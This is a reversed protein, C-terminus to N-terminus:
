GCYWKVRFCAHGEATNEALLRGNQREVVAKALALGIGANDNAAEKGRYFREFLHPIDKAAFGIGGDEMRLETYIPNRSYSVVIKGGKPTHEVCNKLLNLLAEEM